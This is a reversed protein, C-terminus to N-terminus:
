LTMSTKVSNSAYTAMHESAQKSIHSNKRCFITSPGKLEKQYWFGADDDLLYEVVRKMM